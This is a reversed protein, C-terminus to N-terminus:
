VSPSFSTDTASKSPPLIQLPSSNAKQLGKGPTHGQMVRGAGNGKRVAGSYSRLQRTESAAPQPLLTGTPGAAM